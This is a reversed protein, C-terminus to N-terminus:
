KGIMTPNAALYELFSSSIPIPVIIAIINGYEIANRNAQVPNNKIQVNKPSGIPGPTFINIYYFLKTSWVIIAIINGYEIANRNAQVPNNKIQVNKPSGIPGPTFINIYYFLKTSWLQNALSKEIILVIIEM